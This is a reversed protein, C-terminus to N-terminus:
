RASPDWSQRRIIKRAAVCLCLPSVMVETEAPWMRSVGVWGTPLLRRSDPDFGRGGSWFHRATGVSSGAEGGGGGGGGVLRLALHPEGTRSIAGSNFGGPMSVLDSATATQQISYGIDSVYTPTQWSWTVYDGVSVEKPDHNWAYGYGYDSFYSSQLIKIHNFKSAFIYLNCFM